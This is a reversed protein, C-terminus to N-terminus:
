KMKISKFIAFLRMKTQFKGHHFTKELFCLVQFCIGLFDFKQSVGDVDPCVYKRRKLLQCTGSFNNEGRLAQYM